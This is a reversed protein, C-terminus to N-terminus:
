SRKAIIEKRLRERQYYFPLNMEYPPNSRTKLIIKGSKVELKLWPNLFVPELQSLLPLLENCRINQMGLATQVKAVGSSDFLLSLGEEPELHLLYLIEELPIM